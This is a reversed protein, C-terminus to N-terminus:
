TEIRTQKLLLQFDKLTGILLKKEEDSQTAEIKTMWVREFAREIGLIRAEKDELKGILEYAAFVRNSAETMMKTRLQEKMPDGNTQMCASRSYEMWGSAIMYDMDELASRRNRVSAEVADAYQEAALQNILTKFHAEFHYKVKHPAVAMQKGEIFKRMEASTPGYGQDFLAEIEARHPSMCIVCRASTFQGLAKALPNNTQPKEISPVLNSEGEPKDPEPPTVQPTEEM